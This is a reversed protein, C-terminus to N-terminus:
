LEASVTMTVDYDGSRFRLSYGTVSYNVTNITLYIETIKDNSDLGFLRAASSRKIRGSFSTTDFAPMELFDTISLDLPDAYKGAKTETRTSTTEEYAQEKGLENLKKETQTVAFGGDKQEYVETYSYVVLTRGSVTIERTVKKASALMETHSYSQVYLDLYQSMPDNPSFVDKEDPDEQDGPNDPNDPNTPDDKDDPNDPNTPDDKDDPNDPNTPDDKDDPNDPTTPDDKDDPNDPNTPDDKDDPNDPTTPDDKGGQDDPNEPNTPDTPTVQGSPDEGNPKQEEPGCAAFSFVLALSLTAALILRWIKKM